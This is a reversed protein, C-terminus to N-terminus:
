PQTRGEDQTCRTCGVNTSVATLWVKAGSLLRRWNRAGLLGSNRMATNGFRRLLRAVPLTDHRHLCYSRGSVHPFFGGLSVSYCGLLVLSNTIRKLSLIVYRNRQMASYSVTFAKQIVYRLIHISLFKLCDWLLLSIIHRLWQTRLDLDLYPKSFDYIFNQCYFVWCVAKLHVSCNHGLFWPHICSNVSTWFRLFHKPPRIFM